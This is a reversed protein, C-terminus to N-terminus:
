TRQNTWPRASSTRGRRASRTAASSSGPRLDCGERPAYSPPAAPPPAPAPAASSACPSASTSAPPRSPARPWTSRAPWPSPGPRWSRQVRTLTDDRPPLPQFPDELAVAGVIRGRFVVPCALVAGLGPADVVLDPRQTESAGLRVQPGHVLAAAEMVELLAVRRPAHEFGDFGQTAAVRLRGSRPCRTAVVGRPLQSAALAQALVELPCDARYDRIAQLSRATIPEPPQGADLLTEVAGPDVGLHRASRQSPRIRIPPHPRTM